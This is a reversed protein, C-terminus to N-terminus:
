ISCHSTYRLILSISLSLTADGFVTMLSSAELQTIKNPAVHFIFMTTYRQQLHALKTDDDLRQVSVTRHM